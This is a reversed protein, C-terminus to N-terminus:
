HLCEGKRYGIVEADSCATCDSSYTKSQDNKDFGCVPRYIMTCIEPRPESCDSLDSRKELIDTKNERSDISKEPASQCASLLLLILWSINKLVSM